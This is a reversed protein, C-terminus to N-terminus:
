SFPDSQTLGRKRKPNWNPDGVGLTAVAVGGAGSQVVSVANTVPQPWERSVNTSGRNSRMKGNGGVGMGAGTKAPFTFRTYSTFVCNGNMMLELFSTRM